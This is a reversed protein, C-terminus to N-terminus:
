VPCDCLYSLVDVVFLRAVEIAFESVDVCLLGVVVLEWTICM